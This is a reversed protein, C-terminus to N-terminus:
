CPPRTGQLRSHTSQSSPLSHSPQKTYDSFFSYSLDMWHHIYGCKDMMEPVRGVSLVSASVRCSGTFTHTQLCRIYALLNKGVLKCLYYRLARASPQAHPLNPKIHSNGSTMPPKLQLQPSQVPSVLCDLPYIHHTGTPLIQEIPCQPPPPPPNSITAGPRTLAWFYSPLIIQCFREVIQM